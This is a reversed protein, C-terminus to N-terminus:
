YWFSKERFNSSVVKSWWDATIVMISFLWSRIPSVSFREIAKLCTKSWSILHTSFLYLFFCSHTTCCYGNELKWCSSESLKWYHKLANTLYWSQHCYRRNLSFRSKCYYFNLLVCNWGWTLVLSHSLNGLRGNIALNESLKYINVMLWNM